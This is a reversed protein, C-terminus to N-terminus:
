ARSRIVAGSPIPPRERSGPSRSATTTVSTRATDRAKMANVDIGPLTTVRSPARIEIVRMLPQNANAVTHMTGSSMRNDTFPTAGTLRLVRRSRRASAATAPDAASRVLPNRTICPSDACRRAM